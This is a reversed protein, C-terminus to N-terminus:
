AQMNSAPGLIADAALVRHEKGAILCILEGDAGIRQATGVRGDQLRYQKGPTADVRSWAAALDQWTTIDPLQSFSKLIRRLAEQPDLVKGMTAILSTATESLEPPYAADTLNVGVGVLPISEPVIETLIGGLKKGGYVVDNPWQVQCGFAEACAVALAMGMLYPRPHPAFVLSVALCQNPPSSWPRGFRGRGATQELALLAGVPKGERILAAAANQTSDTSKLTILPGRELPSQM